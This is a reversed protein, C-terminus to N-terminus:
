WTIEFVGAETSGDDFGQVPKVSVNQDKSRMRHCLAWVYGYVAHNSTGTNNTVVYHQDGKKEVFWGYGEPLNRQNTPYVNPLAMIATELSDVGAPPIYSEVASKGIAVLATQGGESDFIAHEIDLFLQSPYWKDAEMEDVTFGYKELIPETVHHELNNLYALLIVGIVETGEPAQFQVAPYMM